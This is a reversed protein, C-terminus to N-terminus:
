TLTKTQIQRNLPSFNKHRRNLLTTLTSPTPVLSIAPRRIFRTELRSVALLNKEDGFSDLGTKPGGRGGGRETPIHPQEGPVFHVRSSGSGVCRWTTCLKLHASSYRVEVVGGVGNWIGEHRAFLCNGLKVNLPGQM